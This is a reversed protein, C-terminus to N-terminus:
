KGLVMQMTKTYSTFTLSNEFTSNFFRTAPKWSLDRWRNKPKQASSITSGSAAASESKSTLSTLLTWVNSQIAITVRIFIYRNSHTSDAVAALRQNIWRIFDGYSSSYVCIQVYCISTLQIEKVPQECRLHKSCYSPLCVPISSDLDCSYWAQGAPLLCDAMNNAAFPYCVGSFSAYNATELVVANSTSYHCRHAAYHLAIHCDFEYFFMNLLQPICVEKGGGRGGFFCGINPGTM